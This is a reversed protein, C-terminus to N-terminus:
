WVSRTLCNWTLEFEIYLGAVVGGVWVCVCARLTGQQQRLHQPLSIPLQLVLFHLLGSQLFAVLVITLGLSFHAKADMWLLSSKVVTKGEIYALFCSIRWSM